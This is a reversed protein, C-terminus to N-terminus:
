NMIVVIENFDMRKRPISVLQPFFIIGLSLYINELGVITQPVNPLAIANEVGTHKLTLHVKFYFEWCMLYVNSVAEFWIVTVTQLCYTLSEPNKCVQNWIKRCLNYICLEVVWAGLTHLLGQYCTYELAKTFTCNSPCCTQLKQLRICNQRMTHNLEVPYLIRLVAIAPSRAMGRPM